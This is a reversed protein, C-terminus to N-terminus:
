VKRMVVRPWTHGVEHITVTKDLTDITAQIDIGVLWRCCERIDSPISVQKTNSFLYRRPFECKRRTNRKVVMSVYTEGPEWKLPSQCVTPGLHLAGNNTIPKVPLDIKM